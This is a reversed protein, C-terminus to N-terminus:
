NPFHKSKETAEKQTRAIHQEVQLDCEISFDIDAKAQKGYHKM